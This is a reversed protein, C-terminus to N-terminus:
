SQVGQGLAARALNKACELAQYAAPNFVTEKAAENLRHAEHQAESMASLADSLAARLAANTAQLSEVEALLMPAAAILRANAANEIDVATIARGTVTAISRQGNCLTEPYNTAAGYVNFGTYKERYHTFRWPGPTHGAYPSNSTMAATPNPTQM